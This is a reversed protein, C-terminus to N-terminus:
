SIDARQPRDNVSQAEVANSLVSFCVRGLNCALGACACGILLWHVQGANLVFCNKLFLVASYSEGFHGRLYVDLMFM